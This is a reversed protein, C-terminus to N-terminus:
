AKLADIMKVRGTRLISNKYIRGAILILVVATAIVIVLSVLPEWWQAEGFLIRLPMAVPSSLPIYSLWTMVVPNSAGLFPGMYPIMMLYIIPATASAVDEPRSLTASVAAYMAAFVMYGFFTFVVFWAAAPLLQLAFDQVGAVYLAVLLVASFTLMQVVALLTGAIIKGALITSSSVTSVLLEVIRSAKEEVISQALRQTSVTLATFFLIGFGLGTFMRVMPDFQEAEPAEVLATNPTITAASVVQQKVEDSGLVTLPVNPAITAAEGEPTFLEMGAVEATPVLLADVEGAKLREIGAAVSDVSETALPFEGGGFETTDVTTAVTIDDDGAMSAFFEGIYKQGLVAILIFAVSTIMGWIFAKSRVTTLLEREAVLRVGEATSVTRVSATTSPTTTATM